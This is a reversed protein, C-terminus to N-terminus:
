KEFLRKGEKTLKYSRGTPKNKKIYGKQELKHLTQKVNSKFGGLTVNESFIYNAVLYKKIGTDSVYGYEEMHHIAELIMKNYSPHLRKNGTKNNETKRQTKVKTSAM